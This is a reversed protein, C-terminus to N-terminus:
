GMYGTQIYGFDTFQISWLTVATKSSTIFGAKKLESISQKLLEANIYAAKRKPDDLELNVLPEAFIDCGFEEESIGTALPYHSRTKSLIRNKFGAKILLHDNM